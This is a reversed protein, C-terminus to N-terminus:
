RRGANACRLEVLEVLVFSRAGPRASERRTARSRTSSALELEDLTALGERGRRGYVRRTRLSATHAVESLRAAPAPLLRSYGYNAAAVAVSTSTLM